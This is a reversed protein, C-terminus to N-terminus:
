GTTCHFPYSFCAPNCFCASNSSFCACRKSASGMSASCLWTPRLKAAADSFHTQVTFYELVPAAVLKMRLTPFVFVSLAIRSSSYVYRPASTSEPKEVLFHTLERGALVAATLSKHETGHRALVRESSPYVDALYLLRQHRLLFDNLTKWGTAAPRCCLGSPLHVAPLQIALQAALQAAM